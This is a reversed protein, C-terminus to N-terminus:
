DLPGQEEPFWTRYYDDRKWSNGASSFDCFTVARGHVGEPNEHHAGIPLVASFTMWIEDSPSRIPEFGPIPQGDKLGKRFPEM